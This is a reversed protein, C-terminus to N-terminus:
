PLLPWYIRSPCWVSKQWNREKARRCGFGTKKWIYLMVGSYLVPGWCRMWTGHKTSLRPDWSTLSKGGFRTMGGQVETMELSLYHVDWEGCAQDETPLCFCCVQLFFGSSFPLIPCVCYGGTWPFPGGRCPLGTNLLKFPKREALEQFTGHVLSWLWFDQGALTKLGTNQGTKEGLEIAM